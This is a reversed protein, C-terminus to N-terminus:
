STGTTGLCCADRQISVTARALLRSSRMQSLIVSVHAKSVSTMLPRQNATMVLHGRQPQAPTASGRRRTAPNQGLVNPQRQAFLTGLKASTRSWRDEVIVRSANRTRSILGITRAHRAM